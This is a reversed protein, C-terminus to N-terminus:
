FDKKKGYSLTKFHKDEQKKGTDGHMRETTFKELMRTCEATWHKSLCRCLYLSNLMELTTSFLKIILANLVDPVKSSMELAKGMIGVWIYELVSLIVLM